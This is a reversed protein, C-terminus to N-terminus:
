KHFYLFFLKLSLQFVTFIATHGLLYLVNTQLLHKYCLEETPTGFEM